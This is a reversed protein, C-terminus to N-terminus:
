IKSLDIWMAPRVAYKKFNVYDGDYRVVGSDYVFVASDSGAGPSRLWWWCNDNYCFAGRSVACDTPKCVRANRTSFYKNAETISLLFVKDQTNNGPNTQYSPNHDATVTVTPIAAKEKKSFAADMFEENLWQRLTCTEWTVDRNVTNYPQCDLAYKSIVLAKGDKIELVLWEIDEQGHIKDNDQEYSGFFIYDGVKATKLKEFKYKDYISSAKEASDKHGNLAMLTEYAEVVNGDDMLSLAMRYKCEIMQDASDKYGDMAEFAEVAEEYKGNEMLSVANSYEVYPMIVTAVLVMFAVVACVIAALILAIKKERAAKQRDIEERRENELREAEAQAELEELKKQCNQLQEDADKWGPIAKLLHIALQCSSVNNEGM